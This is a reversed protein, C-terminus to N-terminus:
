HIFFHLFHLSTNRQKTKFGMSVDHCMKVGTNLACIFRLLWCWCRHFYVQAKFMKPELLVFFVLYTLLTQGICYM